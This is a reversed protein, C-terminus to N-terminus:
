LENSFYEITKELGEQLTIEPKWGTKNTMKTVDAKRQLPDDKPLAKYIIKSKSEPILELVIVALEEMTFEFPSGINVPGIFSDETNMMLEIGNLLDDIYQFSRTQTGDGYITIPKNQLAQCVFNSIVRGDNPDMYPGYTNFIRIVKCKCGRKSAEYLITEALRKGEDYCARPGMTNVNGRYDETQPHHNSDPDGYVESTSSHLIKADFEMALKCMDIVALSTYITYIPDIQYKPPSAPCALNYIEDVFNYFVDEILIRLKEYCDPNTVDHKLLFYNDNDKFQQINPARGTFFNDVCIVKNGQDLLRKTLNTGIFGAGGFIIVNKM